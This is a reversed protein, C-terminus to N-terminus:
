VDSKSTTTCHTCTFSRLLYQRTSELISLEFGLETYGLIQVKNTLIRLADMSGSQVIIKGSIESFM